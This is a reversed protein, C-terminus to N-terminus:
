EEEGGFLSETMFKRFEGGLDLSQHVERTTQDVSVAFSDDHHLRRAKEAIEPDEIHDYVEFWLATHRREAYEIKQKLSHMEEDAEILRNVIDWSVHGWIKRENAKAALRTKLEEQMEKPMSIDMM